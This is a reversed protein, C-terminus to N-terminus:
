EEPSFIRKVIVNHSRVSQVLFSMKSLEVARGHADFLFIEKSGHERSASNGEEGTVYDDQYTKSGIEDDILYFEPPLGRKRLAQEKAAMIAGAEERTAYEEGRFIRRELLRKAFDRLLEDEHRSWIRMATWLIADDLELYAEIAEARDSHLQDKLLMDLGSLGPISARLAKARKLMKELMVEAARSLPHYYVHLYMYYRSMIYDEAISQGKNLDLGVEVEGNVTGIRMVHLLWEVDFTGYGAGTFLSDRLLYDMRDMDLQSSLLKVIARSHVFTKDIIAAVQEALGSQYAELVQHVETLASRIIATTWDEHREGTVAELAHSFPGHGLDHLLAAAIAVQRFEFLGKELAGGQLSKMDLFRRMLHAVGLSHVFRSHEAGPYAINGMGLQRIRRLRQVEKTNILDVLLQDHDDFAILNHVPDRFSKM